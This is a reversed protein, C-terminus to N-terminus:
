EVQDRIDELTYMVDYLHYKQLDSIARNLIKICDEIDIEYDTGNERDYKLAQYKVNNLAKPLHNTMEYLAQNFLATTKELSSKFQSAM